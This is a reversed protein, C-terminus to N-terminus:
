GIAQGAANHRGEAIASNVPTAHRPYETARNSGQTQSNHRSFEYIEAIIPRPATRKVQKARDSPAHSWQPVSPGSSPPVMLPSPADCLSCVRSAHVNVLTCLECTWSGSAAPRLDRAEESPRTRRRPTWEERERPFDCAECKQATSQNELTCVACAWLERRLQVPQEPLPNNCIACNRRATGSPNLYTCAPCQREPLSRSRQSTEGDESESDSIEIISTSSADYIPHDNTLQVRSTSPTPGTRRNTASTASEALAGSLQLAEALEADAVVDTISDIAARAAERDASPHSAACSQEDRRRREAAEAALEQRTKGNRSSNSGGLRGGSGLAEIRRRAEAAELAKRRGDTDFEGLKAGGWSWGGRGGLKEGPAYFGSGKWGNLVLADYEDELKNLFLYFHEDHPGHVNHTLEHLMVRVLQEIPYFTGPNRAPRLRILIKAGSDINLGLLLADDPFFEAFVPLIWGHHKMIPYVLDAIRKLTHLAESAHPQNALHTFTRILSM